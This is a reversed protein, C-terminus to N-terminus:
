AVQTGLGALDYGGILALRERLAPGALADVVAAAAPTSVWREDIWLEVAHEELPLFRLGFSRAAAEMTLGAPAGTAVRRAVDLHGSALPGPVTPPAGARALARAFAQQTGAGADRQVVRLRRTAIEEVTPVGSARTSALGVRWGGLRWRRVPVPPAPMADAPAHVVVGHVRGAGLADVARGTSAHAVPVRRRARREVLAALLGLAPDCGALVLGAASGGTLPRVRGGTVTADALAWREPNEAGHDAPITVLQEGVRALLVPTGDAPPGDGCAPVPEGAPDPAFLEEVPHGLARALAIAAAVNPVHRGAEVAGVLQRSVGAAEALEAQSWGQAERAARIRASM